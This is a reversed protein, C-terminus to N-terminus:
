IPFHQNTKNVARTRSVSHCVNKIAGISSYSLFGRAVSKKAYNQCSLIIASYTPSRSPVNTNWKVRPVPEMNGQYRLLCGTHTCTGSKHEKFFSMGGKKIAGKERECILWPYIGERGRM